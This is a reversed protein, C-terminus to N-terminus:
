KRPGFLVVWLVGLVVLSVLFPVLPSLLIWAM